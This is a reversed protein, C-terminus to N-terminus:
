VAQESRTEKTKTPKKKPTKKNKDPTSSASAASSALMHIHSLALYLSLICSIWTGFFLNGVNSGPGNQFTLYAVLVSWLALVVISALLVVFSPLSKNKVLCALIVIFGAIVASVISLAIGLRLENCQERAGDNTDCDKKDEFIRLAASMTVISSIFMCLWYKAHYRMLADEGVKGTERGFSAFMYLSCGFALWGAFYLNADVITNEIMALGHNPKMIVPIAMIWVIATVLICGGEIKSAVFEDRINTIIHAASALFALGFSISSLAICWKEEFNRQNASSEDLISLLCILSFLTLAIWSPLRYPLFLAAM